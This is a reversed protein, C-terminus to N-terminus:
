RGLLMQIAYYAPNNLRMYADVAVYITAVLVIVFAVGDFVASGMCFEKDDQIKSHKIGWIFIALLSASVLTLIALAVAMLGARIGSLGAQTVYAEWVVQAMPGLKEALMDIIQQIEEPTM